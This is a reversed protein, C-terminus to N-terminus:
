ISIILKHIGYRLANCGGQILEDPIQDTGRSRFM